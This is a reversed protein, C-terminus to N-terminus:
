KSDNGTRKSKNTKLKVVLEDPLKAKSIPNVPPKAKAISISLDSLSSVWNPYKLNKMEVLFCSIDDWYKDTRLRFGAYLVTIPTENFLMQMCNMERVHNTIINNPRYKKDLKKFYIRTNKDVSFYDRGHQDQFMKTPYKEKMLGIVTWNMTNALFGRGRYKKPTPNKLVLTLAEKFDTEFDIGNTIYLAECKKQRESKGESSDFLIDLKVM